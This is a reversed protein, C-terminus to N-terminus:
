IDLLQRLEKRWQSNRQHRQNTKSSARCYLTNICLAIYVLLKDTIEISLILSAPRLGKNFQRPGNCHIVSLGGTM